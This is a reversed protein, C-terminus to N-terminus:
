RPGPLSTRTPSARTVWRISAASRTALSCASAKPSPRSTMETCCTTVSYELDTSCDVFLAATSLAALQVHVTVRSVRAYRRSARRARVRWLRAQLLPCPALLLVHGAQCPVIHVPWGPSRPLNRKWLIRTGPEANMSAVAQPQQSVLPGTFRTSTTRFSAQTSSPTWERLVLM